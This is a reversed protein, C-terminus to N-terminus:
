YVFVMAYRFMRTQWQIRCLGRCLYLWRQFMQQQTDYLRQWRYLYGGLSCHGSTYYGSDTSIGDCGRYMLLLLYRDITKVTTWLLYHFVNINILSIGHKLHDRDITITEQNVRHTYHYRSDAEPDLLHRTSKSLPSIAAAPQTYQVATYRKVPFDTNVMPDTFTEWEITVHTRIVM